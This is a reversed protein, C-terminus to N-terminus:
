RDRDPPAEFAVKPNHYSHRTLVQEVFAPNILRRNGMVASGVSGADSFQAYLSNSARLVWPRQTDLPNTKGYAVEAFVPRFVDEGYTDDPLYLYCDPVLTFVRQEELAKRPNFRWEHATLMAKTADMVGLYEFDLMAPSAIQGTQPDVTRIVLQAAYIARILKYLKDLSVPKMRPNGVSNVWTDAETIVRLGVLGERTFCLGRNVEGNSLLGRAAQLSLQRESNSTMRLAPLNPNVVMQQKIQEVRGSM